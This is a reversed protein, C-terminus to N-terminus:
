LTSSFELVSSLMAGAECIYVVTAKCSALVCGVIWDNPDDQPHMTHSEDSADDAILNHIEAVIMM